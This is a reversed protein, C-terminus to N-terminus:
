KDTYCLLFSSVMTNQTTWDLNRIRENFIRNTLSAILDQKRWKVTELGLGNDANGFFATAPATTVLDAKM